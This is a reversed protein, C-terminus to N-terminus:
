PRHLAGETDFAVILFELTRSAGEVLLYPSVTTSGEPQFPVCM